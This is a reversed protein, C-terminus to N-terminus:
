NKTDFHLGTFCYLKSNIMRQMDIIIIIYYINQLKKLISDLQNYKKFVIILSVNKGYKEFLLLPITKMVIKNDFRDLIDFTLGMMSLENKYKSLTSLEEADFSM